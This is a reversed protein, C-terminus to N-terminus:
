DALRQLFSLQMKKRIRFGLKKYLRLANDNGPVVHLFPTEQRDLIGAAVMTTLASGYGRGRYEPHTCVASVECFGTLHVREGAMAVLRGDQKIGLYRGMEITRPLFPGPQALNILELMESVDAETLMVADAQPAPQPDEYIMQWAQTVQVTQWGSSIEPLLGAVGIIEQPEVLSRLHDFERSSNNSMAAAVFIGPQYRAAVGGWIALHHHHSNLAHWVPNDLLNFDM